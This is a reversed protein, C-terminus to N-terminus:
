FGLSYVPVTNEYGYSKLVDIVYQAQERKTRISSLWSAAVDGYHHIVHTNETFVQPFFEPSLPIFVDTPYLIFDDVKQIMNKALLGHKKFGENIGPNPATNLTGNELIFNRQSIDEKIEGVIRNGKVCGFTGFSIDAYVSKPSGGLPYGMICDIPAFAEHVLFKDLSQLMEVDTDTYVGGFEYMVELRCYDSVFAWMKNDYAESIFKNKRIDFNDENWLIIEYDPCYKKWSEINREYSKPLPNGGFWCYHITRPIKERGSESSLYKNFDYDPPQHMLFSSVYFFIRAKKSKASISQCQQSFVFFENCNFFLMVYDYKSQKFLDSDANGNLYYDVRERLKFEAFYDLMFAMSEESGYVILKKNGITRMLHNINENIFRIM